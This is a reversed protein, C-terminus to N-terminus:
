AAGLYEDEQQEGGKSIRTGGTTKPSSTQMCARFDICWVCNARSWQMSCTAVATYRHYFGEQFCPSADSCNVFTAVRRQMNCDSDSTITGTGFSGKDQYPMTSINM